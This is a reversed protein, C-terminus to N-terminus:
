VIHIVKELTIESPNAKITDNQKKTPTQKTQKSQIFNNNCNIINKCTNIVDNIEKELDKADTELQAKENEQENKM